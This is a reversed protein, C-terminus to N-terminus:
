QEQWLMKRECNRNISDALYVVREKTDKQSTIYDRKIATKILTRGTGTVDDRTLADEIKLFVASDNEIGDSSPEGSVHDASLVMYWYEPSCRIAIMGNVSIEIGTEEFVERKACEKPLEEKQLFGGPNLYKGKASGYIHRVLLVRDNKLVVVGVALSYNDMIKQEM